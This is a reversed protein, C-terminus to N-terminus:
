IYGMTGNWVLVVIKQIRSWSDWQDDLGSWTVLKFLKWKLIWVIIWLSTSFSYWYNALHIYLWKLLNSVETWFGTFGRASVLGEQKAWFAVVCPGKPDRLPLVNLVCLTYVIGIAEYYTEASDICSTNRCKMHASQLWVCMRIHLVM